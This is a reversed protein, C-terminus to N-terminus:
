CLTTQTARGASSENKSSCVCTFSGPSSYREANSPSRIAESAPSLYPNL